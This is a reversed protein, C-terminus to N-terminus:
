AVLQKLDGLAKVVGSNYVIDRFQSDFFFIGKDRLNKNTYKLWM